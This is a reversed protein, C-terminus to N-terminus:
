KLWFHYKMFNHFQTRKFDSLIHRCCESHELTGRSRQYELAREDAVELTFTNTSHLPFAVQKRHTTIVISHIGRWASHIWHIDHVAVCLHLSNLWAEWALRAFTNFRFWDLRQKWLECDNPREFSLLCTTNKILWSLFLYFALFQFFHFHITKKKQHVNLVFITKGAFHTRTHM